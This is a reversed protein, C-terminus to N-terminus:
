SGLRWNKRGDMPLYYKKSREYIRSGTAEDIELLAEISRETSIVTLLKTDNYRSNLIEFALNVDGDTPERGKGSKFLDDIYLCKVTKLPEVIAQYGEEDNVCAKARVSIDRWLMYRTSIGKEMLLGCLATCLHTKGTGPTGAALFWGEPNEDYSEVLERARRQWPERAEWNELVYRRLMDGLGSREIRERNRRIVMCHCEELYSRGQDDVRHFYGRNLCKPCDYGALNGRDKNCLDARRRALEIPTMSRLSQGGATSLLEQMKESVRIPEM